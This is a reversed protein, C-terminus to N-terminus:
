APRYQSLAALARDIEATIMKEIEVPDTEIALRDKLDPAIRTLINRSEIIQGAAWANLATVPAYEDRMIALEHEHKNALAIEKRRKAETYSEDSKHKPTSLIREAVRSAADAKIEALTKGQQLKRSITSTAVGIEKGWQSLTKGDILQAKM